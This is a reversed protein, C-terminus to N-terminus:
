SIHMPIMKKTYSTNKYVSYDKTHNLKVVQAWVKLVSTSFSRLFHKFLKKVLYLKLRYESATWWFNRFFSWIEFFSKWSIKTPWLDSNFIVIFISKIRSLLGVHPKYLGQIKQTFIKLIWFYKRSITVSHYRVVIINVKPASTIIDLATTVFHPSETAMIVTPFQNLGSPVFWWPAVSMWHRAPFIFYHNKSTLWDFHGSSLVRIDWKLIHYHCQFNNLHFESKQYGWLSM